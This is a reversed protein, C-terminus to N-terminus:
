NPDILNEKIKGKDFHTRNMLFYQKHSVQNSIGFILAIQSIRELALVRCSDVGLQDWLAKVCVKSQDEELFM